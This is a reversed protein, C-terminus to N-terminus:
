MRLFYVDYDGLTTGTSICVVVRIGRNPYMEIDSSIDLDKILRFQGNCM